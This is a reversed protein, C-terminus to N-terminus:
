EVLKVNFMGQKLIIEIQPQLKEFSIDDIEALDCFRHSTNMMINYKENPIINDDPVYNFLLLYHLVSNRLWQGIYKWWMADTKGLSMGFIIIDSKNIYEECVSNNNIGYFKDRGSKIVISQIASFDHFSDNAIQGINDVGIFPHNDNNRIEGHIYLIPEYRYTIINSNENTIPHIISDNDSILSLCKEFAHTYNFSVFSLVGANNPFRRLIELIKRAFSPRAYEHFSFISHQFVDIISEEFSHLSVKSEEEKLYAVLREELYSWIERYQSETKFSASDNGFMIEIDSWNKSGELNNGSIDDEIRNKFAKIQSTLLPQRSLHDMDKHIFWKIFDSYRTNLGANIDFGNGIFFTIQM